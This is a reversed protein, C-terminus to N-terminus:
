LKEGNIKYLPFYLWLKPLSLVSLAPQEAFSVVNVLTCIVNGSIPSLIAVAQISIQMYIYDM